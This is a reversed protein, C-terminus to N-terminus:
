SGLRVSLRVGLGKVGLSGLGHVRFGLDYYQPMGFLLAGSRSLVFKGKAIM